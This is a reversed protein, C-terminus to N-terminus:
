RKWAKRLDELSRGKEGSIAGVLFMIGSFFLCVGGLFSPVDFCPYIALCIFVVANIYYQQVVFLFPGLQKIPWLFIIIFGSVIWCYIALGPWNQEYAWIYPFGGFFLCWAACLAMSRAWLNWKIKVEM